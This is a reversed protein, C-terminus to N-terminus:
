YQQQSRSEPWSKKNPDMMQSSPIVINSVTLLKWNSVRWKSTGNSAMQTTIPKTKEASIEM